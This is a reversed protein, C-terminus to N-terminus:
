QLKNQVKLKVITNKFWFVRENIKTTNRYYWNSNSNLNVFYHTISSIKALYYVNRSTCNEEKLHVFYAIDNQIMKSVGRRVKM